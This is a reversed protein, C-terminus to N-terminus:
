RRVRTVTAHNAVFDRALMTEGSTLKVLVKNTNRDQYVRVGAPWDAALLDADSAGYGAEQFKTFLAKTKDLSGEYFMSRAAEARAESHSAAFVSFADWTDEDVKMARRALDSYTTTYERVQAGLEGREVGLNPEAQSLVTDLLADDGKFM